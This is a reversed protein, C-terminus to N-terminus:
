LEHINIENVGLERLITKNSMVIIEFVADFMMSEYVFRIVISICKGIKPGYIKIM